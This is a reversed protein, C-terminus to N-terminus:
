PIVRADFFAGRIEEKPASDESIVFVSIRVSREGQVDLDIPIPGEDGPKLTFEVRRKAPNTQVMFRVTANLGPKTYGAMARFSKYEGHLFYTAYGEVKLKLPFSVGREYAVGKIAARADHLVPNELEKKFFVPELTDLYLTGSTETGQAEALHVEPSLLQIGIGDEGAKVYSRLLLTKVGRVDIRAAKFQGRRVIPDSEWLTRSGSAFQFGGGPASGSGPQGYHFSLTTYRGGLDFAALVPLSEARAPWIELSNPYTREGQKLEMGTEICATWGTTRGDTKLLRTLATSAHVEELQAPTQAVAAGTEGQEGPTADGERPDEPPRGGRTLLIGAALVLLATGAALM